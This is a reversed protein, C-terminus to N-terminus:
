DKLPVLIRDDSLEDTSEKALQNAIENGVIGKHGPIWGLKDLVVKKVKEM